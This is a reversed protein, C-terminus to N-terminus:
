AASRVASSNTSYLHGLTQAWVLSYGSALGTAARDALLLKPFHGPVLCYSALAAYFLQWYSYSAPTGPGPHTWSSAAVSIHESGAAPHGTEILLRRDQVETTM